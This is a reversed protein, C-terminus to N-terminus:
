ALWPCMEVPMQIFLNKRVNHPINPDELPLPVGFVRNPYGEKTGKITLMWHRNSDSKILGESELDELRSKVFGRDEGSERCIDSTTM